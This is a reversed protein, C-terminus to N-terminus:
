AMKSVDYIMIAYSANSAVGNPAAYNDDLYGKYKQPVQKGKSGTMMMDDEELEEEFFYRLKQIKRALAPKEELLTAGDAVREKEATLKIEADISDKTAERLVHKPLKCNTHL